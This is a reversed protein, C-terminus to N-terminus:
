EQAKLKWRQIPDWDLNIALVVRQTKTEQIWIGVLVKVKPHRGPM